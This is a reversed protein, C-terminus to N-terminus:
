WLPFTVYAVCIPSTEPQLPPSSECSVAQLPLAEGKRNASGHRNFLVKLHLPGRRPRLWRGSDLLDCIYTHEAERRPIRPASRRDM